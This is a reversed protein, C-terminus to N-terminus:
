REGHNRWRTVDLLSLFQDYVERAIREVDPAAPAAAKPTPSSSVTAASTTTSRSSAALQAPPAVSVLTLDAATMGAGAGRDEFMKRAAREFWAPIEVEGGGHRPGHSPRVLEGTSEAGRAAARGGGDVHVSALGERAATGRAAVETSAEAGVPSVLSQLAYGARRALGGLGARAEPATAEDVWGGLVPLDAPETVEREDRGPEGGARASEVGGVHVVPLVSWALRARERASPAPGDVDRASARGVMALARAAAPALSGPRAESLALYVSALAATRARHAAAATSTAGGAMADDDSAMALGAGAASAGVRPEGHVEGAVDGLEAARPEAGGDDLTVMPRADAGGDDLPVMPRAGAGGRLEDAGRGRPAGGIVGRAEGRGTAVDVLGFPAAHVGLDAVARAALLELAAVTAPPSAEARLGLATIAASPWLFAGRPARPPAGFRPSGLDVATVGDDDVAGLEGGEAAAVAAGAAGGLAAGGGARWSAGDDNAIAGDGGATTLAQVFTREVAGAMLALGAPGGVALREAWAAEHPALGYVRAALLTEPGVFDLALDSSAAASHQAWRAARDGIEGPRHGPAAIAAEAELPEDVLTPVALLSSRWSAPAAVVPAAEAASPALVPMTPAAISTRDDDGAEREVPAGITTAVIDDAAAARPAEGAVDVWVPAVSSSARASTGGRATLPARDLEGGLLGAVYAMALSSPALARIDSRAPPM